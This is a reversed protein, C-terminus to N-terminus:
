RQKLNSDVQPTAVNCLAAQEVVLLVIIKSEEPNFHM